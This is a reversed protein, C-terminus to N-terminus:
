RAPLPSPMTTPMAWYNYLLGVSDSQNPVHCYAPIHSDCLQRWLVSDDACQLTDGNQFIITNLDHSMWTFVGVEISEKDINVTKCSILFLSILLLYISKM